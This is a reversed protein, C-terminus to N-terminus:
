KKFFTNPKAIKSLEINNFTMTGRSTRKGSKSDINYWTLKEPLLINETSNWQEFHLYHVENSPKGNFYTVTYGLWEAQYTKPNYYLFYNDEPSDGVGNDYSILIGPYANGDIVLPETKKYVIGEDGLVFPMAFFYFYLNHYFRIDGKFTNTDKKTIWVEEGDYGITFKDQEIKVKRSKLDVVQHETYDPKVMDYSLTQMANWKDIGGHAKFVYNLEKPYTRVEIEEKKKSPESLQSKSAVSPENQACSYLAISLGLSLIVRSFNM